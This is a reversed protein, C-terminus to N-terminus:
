YLKQISKLIFIDNKRLPVNTTTMGVMIIKPMAMIIHEEDVAHAFRVSAYVLLSKRCSEVGDKLALTTSVLRTGLYKVTAARADRHKM